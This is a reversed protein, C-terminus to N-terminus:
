RLFPPPPFHDFQVIYVGSFSKFNLLFFHIPVTGTTEVHEGTKAQVGEGPRGETAALAQAGGAAEGAAATAGGAAPQAQLPGLRSSSAGQM